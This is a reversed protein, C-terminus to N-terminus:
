RTGAAALRTPGRRRENLSPPPALESGRGEDAEEQRRQVESRRQARGQVYTCPPGIRGQGLGSVQRGDAWAGDMGDEGGDGAHRLFKNGDVTVCVNQWMCVHIMCYMLSCDYAFGSVEHARRVM